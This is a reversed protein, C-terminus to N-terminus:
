LDNITNLFSNVFDFTKNKFYQLPSCQEGMHSAVVIYPRVM